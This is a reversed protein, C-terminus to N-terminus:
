FHVKHELGFFDKEEDIELKLSNAPDLKYKFGVEKQAPLETGLIGGRSYADEMATSVTVRDKKAEVTRRGEEKLIQWDEWVAVKNDTEFTIGNFAMNERLKSLDLEGGVKIQGGETIIRADEVRVVPLEGELTAFMSRFEMAGLAGEGVYVRGKVSAT